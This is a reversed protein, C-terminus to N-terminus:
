VNDVTGRQVRNALSRYFKYGSRVGKFFSAIAKLVSIIINSIIKLIFKIIDLTSKILYRWKIARLKKWAPDIIKLKIWSLAWSLFKWAKLAIFPYLKTAVWALAVWLQLALPVCVNKFLWILVINSGPFDAAPERPQLIQQRDGTPKEVEITLVWLLLSITPLTILWFLSINKWGVSQFKVVRCLPMNEEILYNRAYPRDKGVGRALDLVDGQIRALSTEFMKRVEVKWQEYDLAQSLSGVLKSQVDFRSGPRSTAASWANSQWLSILLLTLLRKKEIDLSYLQNYDLAKPIWIYGTEIDRIESLDACGLVSSRLLPNGWAMLGDPTPVNAVVPFIPDGSPGFYAINVPRIFFITTQSYPALFEPLPQISSGQLKSGQRGSIGRNTFYRIKLLIDPPVHNVYMVKYNSLGLGAKWSDGVFDSYTRNDTASNGYFYDVRSPDDVGLRVYSANVVLPACTTKRRFQYLPAGNIGLIRTDLYGTDLTYASNDGLLCVDGYFPCPSDHKDEYDIKSEYFTNCTDITSNDHYCREAYTAARSEPDSLRNLYYFQGENTSLGSTDPVWLGCNPSASLATSGTVISAATVALVQEGISVAFLALMLASVLVFGWKDEKFNRLIICRGWFGTDVEGVRLPAQTLHRRFIRAGGDEFSSSEQLTSTLGSAIRSSSDLTYAPQHLTHPFYVSDLPLDILDGELTVDEESVCNREANGQAGGENGVDSVLGSLAINGGEGRPLRRQFSALRALKTTVIQHCRSFAKTCPSLLLKVFILLRPLALTLAVAITNSIIQATDETVLIQNELVSTLRLRFTKPCSYFVGGTHCTTIEGCGSRCM